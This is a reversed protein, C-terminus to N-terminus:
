RRDGTRSNPYHHLKLSIRILAAVAVPKLRQRDVTLVWRSFGNLITAKAADSFRLGSVFRKEIKKYCKLFM